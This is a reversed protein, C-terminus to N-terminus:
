PRTPAAAPLSGVVSDNYTIGNKELLNGVARDLAVRAKIWVSRAAV